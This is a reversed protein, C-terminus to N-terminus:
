HLKWVNKAFSCISCQFYLLKMQERYSLGLFHVQKEQKSRAKREESKRKFYENVANFDCKSLDTITKKETETM